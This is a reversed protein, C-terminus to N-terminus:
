KSQKSMNLLLGVGMLESILASGGYSIFPLPMGTLPMFGTMSTINMFAQLIIWSSIGAAALQNFKDKSYYAIRFGRWLFLVFLAILLFSGLFGTEEAWVAFISDSIPEPLFGKQESLGIGVGTAGGSGIAILAQKSQYGIGMPDTAPNLFVSLRNQRYDAGTMLFVFAAGGIILILITHWFPSDALFYIIAALAAIIGFTSVDPQLVFLAGVASMILLFAVLNFNKNHIKKDKQSSWWSAWYLIVSLKLFEAPQVTIFKLDLWRIMGKTVGILKPLIVMFLALLNLLFFALAAKKISSLKQKFVIFGLIIGPILAVIIQHQLYHSASGFKKYAIPASVSALILIGLVVLAVSTGLLISDPKGSTEAMRAM